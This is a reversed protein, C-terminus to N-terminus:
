NLISLRIHFKLILSLVLFKPRLTNTITAKQEM